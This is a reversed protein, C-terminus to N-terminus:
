NRETEVPGLECIERTLRTRVRMWLTPRRTTPLTLSMTPRRYKKTPPCAKLKTPAQTAAVDLDMMASMPALTRMPRPCVVWSSYGSRMWSITGLLYRPIHWPRMERETKGVMASPGANARNITALGTRPHLDTYLGDQLEINPTCINVQVRPSQVPHIGDGDTDREKEESEAVKWRVKFLELAIAHRPHLLKTPDVIPPKGEVCPPEDTQEQGKTRTGSSWPGIAGTKEKNNVSSM